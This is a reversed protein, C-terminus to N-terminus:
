HAPEVRDILHPATPPTGAGPTYLEGDLDLLMDLLSDPVEEM